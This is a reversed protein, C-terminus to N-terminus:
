GQTLSSLSTKRLSVILFFHAGAVFIWPLTLKQNKNLINSPKRDFIAEHMGHPSTAVGRFFDILRKLTQFSSQSPSDNQNRCRGM